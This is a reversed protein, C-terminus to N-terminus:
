RPFYRTGRKKGKSVVKKEDLLKRLVLSLEKTATGLSVAIAGVSLGPNANIHGHVRGMLQALLEPTRQQGGRAAAIPAKAQPGPKRGAVGRADRAQRPQAVAAAPRASPREASRKVAEVIEAVTAERVLDSLVTVFDNVCLRIKDKANIM